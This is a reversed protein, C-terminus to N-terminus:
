KQFSNVRLELLKALKILKTMVLESKDFYNTNFEKGGATVRSNWPSITVDTYPGESYSIYDDTIEFESSEGYLSIQSVDLIAERVERDLLVKALDKNEVNVLFLSDFDPDETKFNLNESNPISLLWKWWTLSSLSLGVGLSTNFFLATRFKIFVAFSDVGPALLPGFGTWRHKSRSMTYGDRYERYEQDDKLENYFDLSSLKTLEGPDFYFGGSEACKDIILGPL